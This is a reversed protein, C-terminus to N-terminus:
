PTEWPPETIQQAERRRERNKQWLDNRLVTLLSKVSIEAPSLRQGPRSMLKLADDMHQLLLASDEVSMELRDPPLM